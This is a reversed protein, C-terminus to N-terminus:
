GFPKDTLSTLLDIFVDLMRCRLAQGAGKAERPRYPHLMKGETPLVGKGTQGEAPFDKCKLNTGRPCMTMAM